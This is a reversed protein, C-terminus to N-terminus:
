LDRESHCSEELETKKLQQHTQKQKVASVFEGIASSSLTPPSSDSQFPDIFHTIQNPGLM